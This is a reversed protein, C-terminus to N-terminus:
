FTVSGLEDQCLHTSLGLFPLRPMERNRYSHGAQVGLTEAGLGSLEEIHIPLPLIFTLSGFGRTTARRCDWCQPPQPLFTAFELGSPAVYYYGTEPSFFFFKM